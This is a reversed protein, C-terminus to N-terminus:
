IRQPSLPNPHRPLSPRQGFILMPNDRAILQAPDPVRGLRNVMPDPSSAQVRQM